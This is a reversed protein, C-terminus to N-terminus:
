GRRGAEGALTRDKQCARPSLAESEFSKGETFQLIKKVAWWRGWPAFFVAEALLEPLFCDYGKM